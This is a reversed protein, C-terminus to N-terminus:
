SKKSVIAIFTANSSQNIVGSNHFELFARLLDEKIM